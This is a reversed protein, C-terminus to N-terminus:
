LDQWLGGARVDGGRQGARHHVDRGHHRMELMWAQHNIGAARFSWDDDGFNEAAKRNKTAIVLQLAAM